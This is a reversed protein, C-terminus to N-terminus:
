LYDIFSQVVTFVREERTQYRPMRTIYKLVSHYGSQARVQTRCMQSERNYSGLFHRLFLDLQRYEADYFSVVLTRKVDVNPFHKRGYLFSSITPVCKLDGTIPPLESMKM